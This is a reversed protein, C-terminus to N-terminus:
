KENEIVGLITKYPFDKILKSLESEKRGDSERYFNPSREFALQCNASGFGAIRSTEGFLSNVVKATEHFTGFFLRLCV